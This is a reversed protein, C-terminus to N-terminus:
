AANSRTSEQEYDSGRHFGNGAWAEQTLLMVAEGKDRGRLRPIYFREFGYARLIRDLGANDPDIRCVAVQCGLTHFAYRFMALMVPRSLWRKSDSAASIQIVGADRDYAHFVAVAAVKDADIVAM